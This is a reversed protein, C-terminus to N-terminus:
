NRRFYPARASIWQSPTDSMAGRGGNDGNVASVAARFARLASSVHFERSGSATDSAYVSSLRRSVARLEELATLLDDREQRAFSDTFEIITEYLFHPSEVLVVDCHAEGVLKAVVAALTEARITILVPLKVAVPQHAHANVTIDGDAVPAVNV